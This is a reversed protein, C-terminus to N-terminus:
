SVALTLPLHLDLGGALGLGPSELGLFLLPLGCFSVDRGSVLTMSFGM